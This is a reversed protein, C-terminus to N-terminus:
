VRFSAQGGALPRETNLKSTTAYLHVHECAHVEQAVDGACHTAQPPLHGQGSGEAGM